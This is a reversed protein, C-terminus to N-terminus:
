VRISSLRQNMSDWYLALRARTMQVRCAKLGLRFASPLWLHLGSCYAPGTKTIRLTGHVNVSM